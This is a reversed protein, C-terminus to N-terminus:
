DHHACTVTTMRTAPNRGGGMVSPSSVSHGKYRPPPDTIKALDLRNLLVEM